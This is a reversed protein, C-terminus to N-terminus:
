FFSVTLASIGTECVGRVLYETDKASPLLRIKCSIGINYKDGIERVLARLIAEIRPVDKLLAAGMGM